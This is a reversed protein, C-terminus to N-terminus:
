DLAVADAGCLGRVAAVLERDARVRREAELTAVSGDPRVLEFAVRCQGPKSEFLQELQALVSEDIADLRM